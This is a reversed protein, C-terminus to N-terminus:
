ASASWMRTSLRSRPVDVGILKGNIYLEFYNDAVIFGTVVEGDKDIEVIPLKNLDVESLDRPTVGSCENYLDPLKPATQFDYGTPVTLKTGDKATDGSPEKPREHGTPRRRM